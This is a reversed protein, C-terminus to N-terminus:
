VCLFQNFVVGCHYIQVSPIAGREIHEERNEVIISRVSREINVGIGVREEM